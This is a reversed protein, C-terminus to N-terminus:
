HSLRLFLKYENIKIMHVGFNIMSILLCIINIGFGLQIQDLAGSSIPTFLVIGYLIPLVFQIKDIGLSKQDIFFGAIGLISMTPIAFLYILLYQMGSGEFIPNKVIEGSLLKWSEIGSAYILAFYGLLLMIGTNILMYYWRHRQFKKIEINNLEM